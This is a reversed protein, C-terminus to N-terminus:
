DVWIIAFEESVSGNVMWRYRLVGPTTVSIQKTPASYSGNSCQWWTSNGWPANSQSAGGLSMWGNATLVQLEASRISSWCYQLAGITQTGTPCYAYRLGDVRPLEYYPLSCNGILSPDLTKNEWVRLKLIDVGQASSNVYRSRGPDITWKSNCGGAPTMIDCTDNLTHEVGLNHFFEHVWTITIFNSIDASKGNCSGNPTNGAGAAIIASFGPRAARGCYTSGDNFYPVDIFLLYNKRNTGPNEMSGMEVMLEDAAGSQMAMIQASSYKSKFFQIDYGNATRDIPINLGIQRFVFDRGETLYGAITGNMDMSHDSVDAPLVYIPKVQFGRFTDPQDAYSRTASVNTSSIVPTAAEYFESAGQSARIECKGINLFNLTNGVTSCVSPTTSEYSIPLGSTSKGDLTFSKSSLLLSSPLSFTLQNKGVVAFNLQLPAAAEVFEDGNQTFTIQCRGPSILDIDKGNPTCISPTDSSLAVPYASSAIPNTTVKAQSLKYEKELSASIQNSLMVRISTTVNIAPPHFEDGKQIWLIECRGKALFQLDDMAMRCVSPTQSTGIVKLGSTSSAKLTVSKDVLRVSDPALLSIENTGKITVKIDLSKAPNTLQDGNQSIRILCYGLKYTYLNNEIVACIKPTLISTQIELGASSIVNLPLSQESLVLESPINHTIKQDVKKIQWLLKTKIKVCIYNGSKLGVKACPSGVKITSAQAKTLGFLGLTILVGSVLILSRNRSRSKKLM